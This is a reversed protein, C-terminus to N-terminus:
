ETGELSISLRDFDPEVLIPQLNIVATPNLQTNLTKQAPSVMPDVITVDDPGQDAFGSRKLPVSVLLIQKRAQNKSLGVVGQTLSGFLVFRIPFVQPNKM